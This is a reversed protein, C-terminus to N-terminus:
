PVAVRSKLQPRGLVAAARLEGIAEGSDFQLVGEARPRPLKEAAVRWESRGPAVDTHELSGAM